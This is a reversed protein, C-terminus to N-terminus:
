GDWTKAISHSTYQKGGLVTEVGVMLDESADWKLIYGGGGARFAAQVTEPNSLATLFVLKCKPFLHRIREAAQIGNMEPLNIDLLILDPELDTAMQVADLGSWAVGSLEM